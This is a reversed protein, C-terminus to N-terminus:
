KLISKLKNSQRKSKFIYNIFNSSWSQFNSWSYAHMRAAPLWEPFLPKNFNKSFLQFSNYCKLNVMFFPVINTFKRTRWLCCGEISNCVNTLLRIIIQESWYLAFYNHLFFSYKLYVKYTYTGNWANLKLGLTNPYLKKFLCIIISNFTM